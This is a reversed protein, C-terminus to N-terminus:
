GFRGSCDRAVHTRRTEPCGSLAASECLRITTSACRCPTAAVKLLTPRCWWRPGSWSPRPRVCRGESVDSGSVEGDGCRQHPRLLSLELRRRERRHDFGTFRLVHPSTDSEMAITCAKASSLYPATTCVRSFLTFYPCMKEVVRHVLVTVGESGLM